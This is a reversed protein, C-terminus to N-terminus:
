EFKEWDLASLQPLEPVTKGLPVVELDAHFKKIGIFDMFIFPSKETDALTIESQM